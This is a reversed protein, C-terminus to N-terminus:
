VPSIQRVFGRNDCSANRVAPLHHHIHRKISSIVVDWSFVRHALQRGAEGFAQCRPANSLLDILANALQPVDGSPVVYGTRGHLVREPTGGVNTSVVPLGAGSAEALAVSSPEIHSPLCFLTAARFHDILQEPSLDGLVKCNPTEVQPSCGVITLTAEPIIRLVLDFAALLDPGGKRRWDRGVFLINKTGPPRDDRGFSFERNRGSYVCVVKKPSCDYDERISRAAFDSTTFTVNANHYVTRELDIWAQSYLNRMDYHPYKLNALLTHDTYVFHPLGAASADFLSQTQFSFAYDEALLREGIKSKIEKFLYTTRPLCKWLRKNRTGLDYAYERMCSFVNRWAYRGVLDKEVDIVDISLDPFAKALEAAVRVNVHSFSGRKVFAFKRPESM